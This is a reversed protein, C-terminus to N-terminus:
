PGPSGRASWNAAQDDTQVFRAPRITGLKKLSIVCDGVLALQPLSRSIMAHQKGPARYEHAAGIVAARANLPLSLRSM